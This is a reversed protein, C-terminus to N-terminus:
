HATITGKLHLRGGAKLKPTINAEFYEDMVRLYERIATDSAGAAQLDSVAWDRIMGYSLGETAARADLKPNQIAHTIIGHPSDGTSDRMWITPAQDGEYGFKGFVRKMLADQCGHHAQVVRTSKPKTGYPTALTDFEKFLVPPKGTQASTVEILNDVVRLEVTGSKLKARMGGDALRSWGKRGVLSNLRTSPRAIIAGEALATPKSLIKGAVARTGSSGAEDAVKLAPKSLETFLGQMEKYKAHLAPLDVKVDPSRSRLVDDYLSIVDDQLKILRKLTAKKPLIFADEFDTFTARLLNEVEATARETPNKNGARKFREELHGHLTKLRPKADILEEVSRGLPIEEGTRLIIRLAGM